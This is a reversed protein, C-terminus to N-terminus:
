DLFGFSVIETAGIRKLDAEMEDQVTEMFGQDWGDRTLGIDTPGISWTQGGLYFRTEVLKSPWKPNKDWENCMYCLFHCGKGGALRSQFKLCLILSYKFEM